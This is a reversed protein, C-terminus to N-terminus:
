PPVNNRFTRYPARRAAVIAAEEPKDVTVAETSSQGNGDIGRRDKDKQLSNKNVFTM